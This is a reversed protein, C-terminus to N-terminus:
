LRTYSVYHSSSLDLSSQYHLDVLSCRKANRNGYCQYQQQPIGGFRIVAEITEAIHEGVRPEAGGAHCTRVGISGLKDNAILHGAGGLVEIVLGVAFESQLSGKGRRGPQRGSHLGDGHLLIRGPDDRLNLPRVELYLRNRIKREPM